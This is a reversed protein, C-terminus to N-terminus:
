GAPPDCTAAGSEADLMEETSRCEVAQYAATQCQYWDGYVQEQETSWEGCVAEADYVTDGGAEDSCAQRAAVYDACSNENSCAVLLVLLLAM